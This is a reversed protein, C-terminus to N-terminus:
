HLDGNRVQRTEKLVSRLVDHIGLERGCSECGIRGSAPIVKNLKERPPAYM